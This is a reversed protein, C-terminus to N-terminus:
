DNGDLSYADANTPDNSLPPESDELHMSLSASVRLPNESVESLRHESMLSGQARRMTPPALGEAGHGEEETISSLQIGCKDINGGGATSPSERSNASGDPKVTALLMAAKSSSVASTSEENEDEDEYVMDDVVVCLGCCCVVKGDGEVTSSESNSNSLRNPGHVLSTRFLKVKSRKVRMKPITFGVLVMKRAYLLLVGMLAVVIFGASRVLYCTHEQERLYMESGCASRYTLVSGLSVLFFSLNYVLFYVPKVDLNKMLEESAEDRQFSSGYLVFFLALFTTFGLWLSCVSIFYYM